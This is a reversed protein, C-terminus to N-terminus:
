PNKFYLELMRFRTLSTMKVPNQKHVVNGICMGLKFTRITEYPGLQSMKHSVLYWLCHLVVYYSTCVCLARVGTVGYM